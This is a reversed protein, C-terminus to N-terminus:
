VHNHAKIKNHTNLAGFLRYTMYPIDSKEDLSLHFTVGKVLDWDAAVYKVFTIVAECQYHISIAYSIFSTGSLLAPM